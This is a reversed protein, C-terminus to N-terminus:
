RFYANDESRFPNVRIFVKTLTSSARIASTNFEPATM